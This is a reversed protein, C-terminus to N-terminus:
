GQIQKQRTRHISIYGFYIPILGMYWIPLGISCFWLGSIISLISLIYVISSPLNLRSALYSLPGIFLTALVILSAVLALSAM